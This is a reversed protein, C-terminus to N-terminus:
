KRIIYTLAYYPPRNEHSTSAAAATNNNVTITHSHPNSQNMWGTTFSHTHAGAGDTNLSTWGGSTESVSHVPYEVGGGGRRTGHEHNGPDSTSGSHQHNIDTTASSAGHGHAPVGSQAASLTVAELGGTAGQAYSTLGAGAGVGVVFRGRLDPTNASGLVAQLQASGHASGDCLHWGVPATAGGYMVITGVPTEYQAHEHRPHTHPPVLAM